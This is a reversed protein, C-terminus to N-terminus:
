LDEVGNNAWHDVNFQPVELVREAWPVDQIVNM